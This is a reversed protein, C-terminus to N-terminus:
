EVHKCSNDQELYIHESHITSNTAKEANQQKQVVFM